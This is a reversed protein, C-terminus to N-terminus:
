ARRRYKRALFMSGFLCLFFFGATGGAIYALLLAGTTFFLYGFVGATIAFLAYIMQHGLAYMLNASDGLGRFRMELEGRMAKGLYKRVDDPVALASMATDKMANMVLETFDKEGGFVFEELYPRIVAMPNMEPDLHTCVGSMLLITRELLVWDKPVQFASTLERISIDQRRLDLLNELGKQPDIKIDKLNLSELQVEDQFRRHFYEVIRESAAEAEAGRAIFGMTRLSRYIGTTDRKIVAELLDPIGQRMTPSLEAVAGFDLLVITGDQMVLINGPHPDAHYLGDQFIMKCYARVLRKAMDTRDIGWRDLTELDSVKTGECYTTTLVRGTCFQSYLTPVTVGEHEGLNERIRDMFAAERVFDLEAEIMERVQRYIVDLGKIPVFWAVIVMIRWITKLDMHVIEDIDAHQVKVAVETKDKLTARHVQGLSASALPTEDFRAFLAEPPAGLEAEIRRRIEHLPRPPVQDQLSELPKRFEEPLFNTMISILQGVKIFLGQLQVITREIRKANLTHIRPLNTEYYSRGFLRGLFTLRLYSAIVVFTTFYAKIFRLRRVAPNRFAIEALKSLERGEVQVPKTVAESM